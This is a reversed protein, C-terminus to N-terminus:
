GLRVGVRMGSCSPFFRWFRAPTLRPAGRLTIRKLLRHVYEERVVPVARGVAEIMNRCKGILERLQPMGADDRYGIMGLRNLYQIRWQEPGANEVGTQLLGRHKGVSARGVEDM